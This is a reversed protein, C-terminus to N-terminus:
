DVAINWPSEGSQVTHEAAVTWHPSCGGPVQVVQGTYVDDDHAWPDAAQWPAVSMDDAIARRAVETEAEQTWGAGVTSLWFLM